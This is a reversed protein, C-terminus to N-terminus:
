RKRREQQNMAKFSSIKKKLEPCDHLVSLKSRPSRKQNLTSSEVSPNKQMVSSPIFCIVKKSSHSHSGSRGECSPPPAPSNALETIIKRKRKKASKENL